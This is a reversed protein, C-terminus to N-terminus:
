KSNAWVFAVNWLSSFLCMAAAPWNKEIAYRASAALFLVAITLVFANGTM